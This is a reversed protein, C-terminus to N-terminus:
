CCLIKATGVFNSMTLQDMHGQLSRQPKQSRGNGFDLAEKSYGSLGILQSDRVARYLDTPVIPKENKLAVYCLAQPDVPLM